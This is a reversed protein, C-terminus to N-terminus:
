CKARLHHAFTVETQLLANRRSLTGVSLEGVRIPVSILNLTSVGSRSLLGQPDSRLVDHNGLMGNNGGVQGM